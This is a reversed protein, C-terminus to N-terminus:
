QAKDSFKAIMKYLHIFEGAQDRAMMAMTLHDQAHVLIINVEVPEGKAEQQIMDIQAQHALRMKAEAEALHNGAEEFRFERAAEVALYSASKSDGANLIIQFANLYKSDEM